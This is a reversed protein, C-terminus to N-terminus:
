FLVDGGLTAGLLGSDKDRSIMHGEGSSTSRATKHGKAPTTTPGGMDDNGNQGQAQRAELESLRAATDRNAQELQANKERLEAAELQAAEAKKKDQSCGGLVTALGLLGVLALLGGRRLVGMREM